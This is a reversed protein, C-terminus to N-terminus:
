PYSKTSRYPAAVKEEDKKRGAFCRVLCYSLFLGYIGSELLIMGARSVGIIKIYKWKGTKYSM